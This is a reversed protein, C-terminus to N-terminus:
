WHLRLGIQMNRGDDATTITGRTSNSINTDPNGFNNHNLVNFIEARFEVRARNVPFQKILSLNIQQTGPGRITNRGATGQTGLDPVAYATADFWHTVTPDSIIGYNGPNVLNVRQPVFSGCQCVNTSTVTLPFGSAFRAIGQV